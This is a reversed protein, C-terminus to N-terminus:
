PQRSEGTPMARNEDPFNDDNIQAARLSLLMRREIDNRARDYPSTRMLFRFYEQRLSEARRRNALWRKLPSEGRGLSSLFVAILAITTEIFAFTPLLWESESGVALGQLGGVVTALAALLIYGLQLKRYKNQYTKANADNERFLNLLERELHDMDQRISEAIPKRNSPTIDAQNILDDLAAPSVLKFDPDPIIQARPLDKAWAPWKERRKRPTQQSITTDKSEPSNDRGFPWWRRAKPRRDGPSSPNHPSTM